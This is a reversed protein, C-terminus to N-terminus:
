RMHRVVDGSVGNVSVIRDGPKVPNGPNEMNWTNITGENIGEILLTAGDKKRRFNPRQPTLALLPKALLRILCLFPSLM